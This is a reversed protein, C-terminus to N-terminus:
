ICSTTHTEGRLIGPSDQDKRKKHTNKDMKLLVLSWEQVEIFYNKIYTERATDAHIIHTDTGNTFNQNIGEM